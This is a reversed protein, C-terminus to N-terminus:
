LHNETRQFIFIKHLHFTLINNAFTKNKFDEIDLSISKLLVYM